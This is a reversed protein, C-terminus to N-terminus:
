LMKWAEDLQTQSLNTKSEFVAMAAVIKQITAKDNKIPQTPTFGTKKCVYDIYALTPNNDSPPAWTSIIEAVTDVGRSLYTLMNKMAARVGYELTTFQEFGVTEVTKVKGQWANASIRINLPNNKPKQMGKTDVKVGTLTEVNKKEMFLLLVIGFPLIIAGIILLTNKLKRNVKKAKFFPHNSV